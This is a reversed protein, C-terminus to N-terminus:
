RDAPRAFRGAALHPCAFGVLSPAAFDKIMVKATEAMEAVGYLTGSPVNM